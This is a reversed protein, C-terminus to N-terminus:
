YQPNEKGPSNKMKARRKQRKPCEKVFHGIGQCEYCRLANKSSTRYTIEFNQWLVDEGHLEPCSNYFTRVNDALGLVVVQLCDTELWHRIGASGESSSFFEELSVASETGSWKPVRSVSSFWQPCDPTSHSIKRKLASNRVASREIRAEFPSGSEDHSTLKNLHIGPM